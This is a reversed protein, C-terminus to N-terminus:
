YNFNTYVVLSEGTLNVTEGKELRLTQNLRVPVLKCDGDKLLKGDAYVFQKVEKLVPLSSSKLLVPKTEKSVNVVALMYRGEKEVAVAKVSPEGETEVKYVRSGAPMYRTLLSWAYFWPRVEEEETGFFEDGFINWFGWVKLKDPAEKAHMADDLMWAVSGSYGANVTQILADAMDTGYMYDYVFMQSDDVSAYPKAAARRLNERQYASDAPEVFKFGIEGMVIKKDTPVFNKYARLIDTYVGSNVTVKSPYTHIDLLDIKQKLQTACSDVWWAEDATWIAADPGVLSLRDALNGRELESHFFRVAHAWLLYKGDTSSWYGNPENVLNYYKICSYGKEDILFRVYEVAASLNKEHIMDTRADVMGGGWDGFMVTVGRSQCYDLIRSLHELGREPQLVGDKMVSTTNTMVRIFQPRMFDLREYMKQWDAESIELPEKGYNLQYPDWQAGNGIYGESVIQTTDITVVTQPVTTCSWLSLIFLIYFLIKNM